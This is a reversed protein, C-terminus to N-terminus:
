FDRSGADRDRHETVRRSALVDATNYARREHARLDHERHWTSTCWPVRWKGSMLYYGQAMAVAVHEHPVTVFEPM